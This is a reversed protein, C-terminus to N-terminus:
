KTSIYALSQELHQHYEILCSLCLLYTLLSIKPTNFTGFCFGFFLCFFTVATTDQYINLLVARTQLVQWQVAVMGLKLGGLWTMHKCLKRVIYGSAQSGFHGWYVVTYCHSLLLSPSNMSPRPLHWRLPCGRALWATVILSTGEPLLVPHPGRTFSAQQESSSSLAEEQSLRHLRRHSELTSQLCKLVFATQYYHRGKKHM